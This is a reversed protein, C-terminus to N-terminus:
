GYEFGYATVDGIYGAGLIREGNTLVGVGHEEEFAAHFDLEAVIGDCGGADDRIAISSLRMWKLLEDASAPKPGYGAMMDGVQSVDGHWWMGSEHGRGNFDEWLAATVKRVLASQDRVIKEALAVASPPPADAGEEGILSLDYMGEPAPHGSEHVFADFAPANVRGSWWRGDRKFEGLTPHHWSLKM